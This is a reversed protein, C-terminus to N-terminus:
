AVHEEAHQKARAAAAFMGPFFAPHGPRYRTGLEEYKGYGVEVQVRRQGVGRRYVKLSRKMRGTFVHIRREAEAKADEAVAEVFADVDDPATAIRKAVTDRRTGTAGVTMRARPM